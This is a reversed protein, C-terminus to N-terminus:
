SLLYKLDAVSYVEPLQYGNIFLTPTFSIETKNCWEEMKALENNQQELSGNVPYQSAFVEYNKEKAMYWADLAQKTQQENNNAAIALLHKVPLARKDGEKNTATFIIQAKINPNTALLEEIVPHATACPGCYPNCVKVITHQANANGISIGLGQSSYVVQKQKLLLASFIQTDYKFRMLQRKTRKAEQAKLLNPKLLYWIIFPLLFSLIFQSNFILVANKISLTTLQNTTLAVIFEAILLVQVTLCLVCWQKAIRWQYYVSFITYPLALLNIVAILFIAKPTFFLLALFSGTFYFFGIESWSFFNFLKAQKSSLIANCNTKAGATCIQQLIPNAKDVEYWLLLGTVIIGMLKISSIIAFFTTQQVNVTHLMNIASAVIATIALLITIPLQLNKLLQKKYNAKFDKEGSNSNAEAM